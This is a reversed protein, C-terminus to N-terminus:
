RMHPLFAQSLRVRADRNVAMVRRLDAGSIQVDPGLPYIGANHILIDAGGAAGVPEALAAVSAEARVDCPVVSATGGAAHVLDRTATADGVDALIVRAGHAALQQAYARGIGQAAGTIVATRGHHPLSTALREEQPTLM